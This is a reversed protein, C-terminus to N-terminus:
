SPSILANVELLLPSPSDSCGTGESIGASKQRWRKNENEKTGAHRRHSNNPLTKAMKEKRTQATKCVCLLM